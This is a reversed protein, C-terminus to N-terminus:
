LINESEQSFQQPSQSPSSKCSSISSKCPFCHENLFFRSWDCNRKLCIDYYDRYTRMRFKKELQRKMHYQFCTFVFNKNSSIEDISTGCHWYKAIVCVRAGRPSYDRLRTIQVASASARSVPPRACPLIHFVLQRFRRLEIREVVM